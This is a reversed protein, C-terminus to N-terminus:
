DPNVRSIGASLLSAGSASNAIFM